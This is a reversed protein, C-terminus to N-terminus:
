LANIFEGWTAFQTVGPLCHFVNEHPGIIIIEKGNALAYGFEVHRGGRGKESSPKETFSIVAECDDIDKIDDLAFPRAVMPVNDGSADVESANPHIQYTGLLWRSNVDHGKARIQKAYKNIEDIRQYRAALYFIM